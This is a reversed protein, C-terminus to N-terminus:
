RLGKGSGPMSRAKGHPIVYKKAVEWEMSAKRGSVRIRAFRVGGVFDGPKHASLNRRQRNRRWLSQGLVKSANDLGCLSKL